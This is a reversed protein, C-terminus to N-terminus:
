RIKFAYNIEKGLSVTFTNLTGRLGSEYVNFM